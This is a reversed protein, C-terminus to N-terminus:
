IVNGRIIILINESVAYRKLSIDKYRKNPKRNEPIRCINKDVSFITFCKPFPFIADTIFDENNPMGSGKHEHPTTGAAIVILFFPAFEPETKAKKIDVGVVPM